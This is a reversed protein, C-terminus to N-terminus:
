KPARAEPTCHGTYQVPAQGLGAGVLQFAGSAKHLIVVLAGIVATAPLPDIDANAVAAVIVDKNQLVTYAASFDFDDQQLDTEVLLGDRLELRSKIERNADKSGFNYNCIWAETEQLSAQASLPCISFLVTGLFICASRAQIM